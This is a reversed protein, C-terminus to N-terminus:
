YSPNCIGSNLLYYNRPDFESIILSYLSTNPMGVEALSHAFSMLWAIQASSLVFSLGIASNSLLSAMWTPKEPAIDLLGQLASQMRDTM